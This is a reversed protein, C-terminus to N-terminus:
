PEDDSHDDHANIYKLVEESEEEDSNYYTDHQLTSKIIEDDLLMINIDELYDRPLDSTNMFDIWKKYKTITESAIHECTIMDFNDKRNQEILDYVIKLEESLYEREIGSYSPSEALLLLKITTTYTPSQLLNAFDRIYHLKESYKKVNRWQLMAFNEMRQTTKEVYKICLMDIKLAYLIMEESLNPLYEIIKPNNKIAERTMEESFNDILFLAYGNNKVAIMKQEETPKYVCGIQLGDQSLATEILIKRNNDDETYIELLNKLYQPIKNIIKIHDDINRKFVLDLLFKSCLDNEEPFLALYREYLDNTQLLKPIIKKEM